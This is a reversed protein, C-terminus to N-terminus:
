YVNFINYDDSEIIPQTYEAERTGRSQCRVDVQKILPQGNLPDAVVHRYDM